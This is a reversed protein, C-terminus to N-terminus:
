AEGLMRRLEEIAGGNDAIFATLRPSLAEVVREETEQDWDETAQIGSDVFLAHLIEHITTEAVASEPREMCSVRIEGARIDCEGWRGDDELEVSEITRVRYERYGVRVSDIM